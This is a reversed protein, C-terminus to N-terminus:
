QRAAGVMARIIDQSLRGGQAVTGLIKDLNATVTVNIQFPHGDLVAPNHGLMTLALRSEGSLPKDLTLELREYRFDALARALLDTDAGGQVLAAATEPSAIRLVGPRQAALRGSEIAVDDQAVVLPLAGDFAGEGSVGEIDLAALLAALDLDSVRLALRNSDALPRFLVGDAAIRGGALAVQAAEVRLVPEAAAGEGALVIRASLTEVPVGGTEFSLDDIRLAGDPLVPHGPRWRVALHGAITGSVSEMAALGPVLQAPQLAGPAFHLPPVTLRASVTGDAAYSGQLQLTTARAARATATATWTGARRAVSGSLAVPAVAPEEADDALSAIAFDGKAREFGDDWALSATLGAIAIRRDGRTVVLKSAALEYGTDARPDVALDALAVDLGGPVRVTGDIM